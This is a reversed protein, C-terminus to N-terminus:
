TTQGANEAQQQWRVVLKSAVDGRLQVHDRMASRAAEADGAAIAAVIREHEAYMEQLASHSEMSAHRVAAITRECDTVLQSLVANSCAELIADHFQTDLDMYAARKESTMCSRMEEHTALLNARGMATMRRTALGAAHGQLEALVEYSEFIRQLSVGVVVTGRGQELRVLGTGVLSLLAERVPTRSVGFREAVAIENIVAGHEFASSLIERELTRAIETSRRTM